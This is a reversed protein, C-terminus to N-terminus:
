RANLATPAGGFVIIILMNLVRVEGEPPLPRFNL